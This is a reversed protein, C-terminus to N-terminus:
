REFEELADHIGYAGNQMLKDILDLCRARIAGDSSQQYTRLTLKIVTNADGAESTRIDGAALRVIDIFRECALLTVEPLKATTRELAVLLPFTNSAFADSSVFRATLDDYGELQSGQFRRFCDAAEARVADSPDSFLRALADECYLRCTATMVNAAMVQAAGIKQAESGSLCLEALDAAEELDLAALCAQRGGVSAVDPVSSTVMRELINSLEQFHTQLAFFLFREIFGTELLADETDCLQQFLEVALDRDHRLVAILAQAVCSRVAISPDQVMKELAPRFHAIRDGGVEILSAIAHSARGRNTNIGNELPDGRYYYEQGPSAQTRWLDEGPDPDETAYWAVLNLAEPPLENEASSALPDCIYRGVPRAEVGHCRECVRVITDINLGSDM